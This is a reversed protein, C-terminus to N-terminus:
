PRTLTPDGQPRTVATGYRTLKNLMWGGLGPEQLAERGLRNAHRELEQPSTERGWVQCSRNPAAKAGNQKIHLRDSARGHQLDMCVTTATSVRVARGIGPRVPRHGHGKLQGVVGLSHQLVPPARRKCSEASIRPSFCHCPQGASSDQLIM